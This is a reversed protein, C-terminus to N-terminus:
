DRASIPCSEDAAWDAFSLYNVQVDSRGAVVAALAALAARAGGHCHSVIRGPGDLGSASMLCVIDEATKLHTGDLLDAHLLHAAGPLLGGCANGKLDDGRFEEATRADFVQATGLSCM